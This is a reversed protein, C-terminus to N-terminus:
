LVSGNKQRNVASRINQLADYFARGQVLGGAFFDEIAKAAEPDSFVFQFHGLPRVPTLRSLQFGKAVAHAAAPMSATNVESM